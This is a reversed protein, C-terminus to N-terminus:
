CLFTQYSIQYNYDILPPRYLQFLVSNNDSLLNSKLELTAIAIFSSPKQTNYEDISNNQELELQIFSLSDSCCKKKKLSPESKLPLLCTAEDKNEYCSKAKTFIGFDKLEGRCYHKSIMLGSSSIFVLISLIIHIAKLLM